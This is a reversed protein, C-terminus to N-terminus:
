AEPQESPRAKRKIYKSEVLISRARFPDSMVKKVDVTIYVVPDLTFNGMWIACRRAYGYKQKRGINKLNHGSFYKNLDMNNLLNLGLQASLKNEEGIKIETIELIQFM